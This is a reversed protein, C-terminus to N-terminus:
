VPELNDSLLAAAAPSDDAMEPSSQSSVIDSLSHSLEYRAPSSAREECPLFEPPSVNAPSYGDHDVATAGRNSLMHGPSFLPLGGSNQCILRYVAGTIMRM